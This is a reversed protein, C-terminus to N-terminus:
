EESGLIFNPSDKHFVYYRLKRFASTLKRYEHVLQRYRYAFLMLSCVVFINFVQQSVWAVGGLTWIYEGMVEFM